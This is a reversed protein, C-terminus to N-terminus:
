KYYAQWNNDGFMFAQALGGDDSTCVYLPGGPSGDPRTHAALMVLSYIGEKPQNPKHWKHPLNDSM